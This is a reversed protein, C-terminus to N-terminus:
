NILFDGHTKIDTLESKFNNAEEISKFRKSKKKNEKTIWFVRYYTYIKDERKDNTETICINTNRNIANGRLTTWRLNSLVNNEKNGDIHDIYKYNNPNDIFTKMLLSHLTHTKHKSQKTLVICHYGKNNIQKKIEINGGGKRLISKVVGEKNIKYLGEYETIDVFDDSIDNQKKKNKLYFNYKTNRSAIKKCEISCYKSNFHGIYNKECNFCNM